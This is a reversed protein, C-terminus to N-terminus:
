FFLIGISKSALFFLIISVEDKKSLYSKKLIKLNNLGNQIM